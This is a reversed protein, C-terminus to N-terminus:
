ARDDQKPDSSPDYLLKLTNNGLLELILWFPLNAQEDMPKRLKDRSVASRASTKFVEHVAHSVASKMSLMLCRPSGTCVTYEQTASVIYEWTALIIYGLM